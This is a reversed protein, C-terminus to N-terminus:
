RVVASFEDIRLGTGGGWIEFGAFIDTLFLNAGFNAGNLQGSQSRMMADRIFLNLDFNYDPIAAGENVYSIVPANGGTGDSAESRDGVYLRWTRNDVTVTQVPRDFGIANRGAPKYTWVMLFAAQATEYDGQLNTNAFWVDYTANYDGNTGNHRFRTQVSQIASVQIPMRDDSRTALSNNSGRFGNGGVFISPFSIPVNGNPGASQQRITFGNGTYDIIQTGDRSTAGWANNQVIYSEGNAGLVKIRDFQGSMTGRIPTLTVPIDTPAGARDQADAFGGVCFDFPTAATDDGPVQFKVSEIPQRSYAQGSGDWCATNFAAYPAFATGGAEPVEYCFPVADNPPQLQVRLTTGVAKSFTFAIGNGTPVATAIPPAQGAVDSVQAQNINFGVIGEGQFAPEAAVAGQACFPQAAQRAGFDTPTITTGPAVGQTFAFGRWAGREVFAAAPQVPGGPVAVPPTEGPVAPPTEGPVAAPPTAGPAGAGPAAAGPAGAGPAGAGPLAANPNGETGPTAGPNVAAGNPATAGPTAAGPAGPQLAGGGFAAPMPVTNADAPASCHLLLAALPALAVLSVIRASSDTGRAFRHRM